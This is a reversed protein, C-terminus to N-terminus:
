RGSQGKEVIDYAPEGCAPPRYPGNFCVEFAAFDQLDVDGDADFDAGVCRSARPPANPGRFCYQFLNFDNLDVDGDKDM